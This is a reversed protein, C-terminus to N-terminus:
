GGNCVELELHAAQGRGQIALVRWDATDDGTTFGLVAGGDLLAAALWDTLDNSLELELEPPDGVVNARSIDKVDVLGNDEAWSPFIGFNGPELPARGNIWLGTDYSFHSFSSAMGAIEEDVEVEIFASPVPFVGSQVPQLGNNALPIYLVAGRVEHDPSLVGGEFNMVYYCQESDSRGVERETTAGFHYESCSGGSCVSRSDVFIDRDADLVVFEVSGVCDVSGTDNSPPSGTTSSTSGGGTAGMGTETGDIGRTTDVGVGTETSLLGSSGGGTGDASGGGDVGFLPNDM